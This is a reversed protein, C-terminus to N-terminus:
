WVRCQMNDKGEGRGRETTGGAAPPHSRATGVRLRRRTRRVATGAVRRRRIRRLAALGMGEVGVGMGQGEGEVVGMTGEEAEAEALEAEEGMGTTAGEAGGIMGGGKMTGTGELRHEGTGTARPPSRPRAYSDGYRSPPSPRRRAYPDPSHSRRSYPDRSSSSPPYRSSSSPHASSSSYRSSSSTRSQHPCDRSWHGEMGCTFCRSSSSTARSTEVRVKM